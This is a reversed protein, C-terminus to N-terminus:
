KLRWFDFEYWYVPFGMTVHIDIIADEVLDFLKENWRPSSSLRCLFSFIMAFNTYSRNLPIGAHTYQEVSTAIPKPIRNWLRDHHACINRIISLAHIWNGFDDKNFDFYESIRKKYRTKRIGSYVKSWTSMSLVEIIVWSPPLDPDTFNAYYQECSPNRRDPDARGTCNAVLGLFSNYNNGQFTPNFNSSDMFWHPGRADCMVNSIVSRIAIEIRELADFALVRLKRDFIYLSLIDDFSVDPRFHKDGPAYFMKRYPKLRFLGIDILYRKAREEDPINLGKQKLFHLQRDVSLTPKAFTPM